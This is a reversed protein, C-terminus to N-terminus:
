FEFPELDTATQTKLYYVTASQPNGANDFITVASTSSYTSDDDVSFINDAPLVVDSSSLNVGMSISDTRKPEGYVSKLQLKNAGALTKDAVAGDSDVPYGLLFQGNSDVIFGSDDVSFSGNRTYVTQAAVGGAEMAFFGQGSIAMDLTNSSTTINGQSFQQVIGKTAAGQGVTQSQLPTSGFIDGFEARSKKFGNSGVNAINNSTTSIDTQAGKLGTLATFFSM